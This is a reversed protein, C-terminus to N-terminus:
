TLGLLPCLVRLGAVILVFGAVDFVVGTTAMQRVSVQGTGYAMANPATSIPLMFGFSAGLTAGLMPPLPSVAAAQTLSYTLPVMLTATATNSTLESLIISAGTVLATIGWLSTAGTMDLLADGWLRALGTRDAGALDGLLMGGGFLLITGWDIRAADAWRLARRDPGAPWIFLACAAVLAVVEETLHRKMWLAAPGGPVALDIASPLLWGAVAAGFCVTVAIEGQSWPRAGRAAVERAAASLPAAGRLRFRVALLAWLVAIMAVGLPVSVAMWTAFSLDIGALSRMHLLGIGNPPTGVPTTIGGVSACYAISLVMAARFDRREASRSVALAIPLMVATAAANSMWWSLLFAAGSLAFLVGQETRAIRFAAAAIREALRHVKMGEALLFSGVFLFLLPHGYAAFAERPAAIGLLVVGATALLATAALPVAETIWWTAAFAMLAALRRAPDDPGLLWVVTGLVPGVWLGLARRWREFRAEREPVVESPETFM